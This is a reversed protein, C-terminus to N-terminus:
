TKTKKARLERVLSQVRLGRIPLRLRLCQVVLSTGTELKLSILCKLLSRNLSLIFVEVQLPTYEIFMYGRGFQLWFWLPLM